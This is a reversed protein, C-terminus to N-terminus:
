TFINWEWMSSPFFIIMPPLPLSPGPHFLPPHPPFLSYSWNQPLPIFLSDWLAL